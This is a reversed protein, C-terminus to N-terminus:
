NTAQAFGHGDNLTKGKYTVAIDIEVSFDDPLGKLIQSQYTVGDFNTVDYM